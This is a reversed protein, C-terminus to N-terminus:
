KVFLLVIFINSSNFYINSLNLLNWRDCTLQIQITVILKTEMTEIIADKLRVPFSNYLNKFTSKKKEDRWPISEGYSLDIM